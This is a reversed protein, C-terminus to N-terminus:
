IDKKSTIANNGRESEKLAIYRQKELFKMGKCEETYDHQPIRPPCHSLVKEKFYKEATENAIKIQM